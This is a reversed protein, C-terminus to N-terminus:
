AAVAETRVCNRGGRKAEYLVTDARDLMTLPREGRRHAAIGISVTIAGLSEGTLRQKLERSIIRNRIQEALQAAGDLNTQPLIVAFEEGGYRAATDQGKISQKLTVGILRLVSDGMLHGFRDNFKKFHDIDIMLLSLPEGREDAAGAAEEFARDFKRRTALGTVADLNAEATATALAQKATEIERKATLLRQGLASHQLEITRLSRILADSIARITEQDLTNALQSSAQVFDGRGRATSLILEGLLKVVNDVEASVKAGADVAASDAQATQLFEHCIHDHDDASLGGKDEILRNIRRNLEQNRGSAYTYWLEFCGPEAPVGLAKIREIAQEAVKVTYNHHSADMVETTGVLM